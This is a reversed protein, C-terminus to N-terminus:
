AQLRDVARFDAPRCYSIRVRGGKSHELTGGRVNSSVHAKVHIAKVHTHVTHYSVSCRKAVEQYTLGDALACAVVAEMNTLGFRGRLAAALASAALAETERNARRSRRKGAGGM